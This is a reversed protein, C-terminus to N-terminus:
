AMASNIVKYKMFISQKQIVIQFYKEGRLLVDDILSQLNLVVGLKFQGLYLEHDFIQYQYAYYFSTLRHIVIHHYKLGLKIINFIHKSSCLLM